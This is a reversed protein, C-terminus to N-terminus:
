GILQQYAEASLLADAERWDAPRIKVLWGESYPSENVREPSGDLEGNVELIEGAVPLFLDSVTKVAEITGFVEEGALTEGVTPIDVFVIEGLERQAYDTIGVRAVDGERRIWEHDKTYKLDTPCNMKNSKSFISSSAAFNYNKESGPL